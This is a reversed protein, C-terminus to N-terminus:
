LVPICKLICLITFILRLQIRVRKSNYVNLSGLHASESSTGWVHNLLQGSSSEKLPFMDWKLQCYILQTKVSSGRPISPSLQDVAPLSRNSYKSVTSWSCAFLPQFVQLCNILQLCLATPISPSLQDVAPLSRNSYKSVTSWSCAFLPQPIANFTDSVGSFCCFISTKCKV